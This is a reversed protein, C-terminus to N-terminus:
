QNAELDAAIARYRQCAAAEAMAEPQGLRRNEKYRREARIALASAEGSTM